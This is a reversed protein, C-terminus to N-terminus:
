TFASVPRRQIVSIWQASRNGTVMSTVTPPSYTSNLRWARSRGGNGAATQIREPRSIAVNPHAAAESPLVAFV